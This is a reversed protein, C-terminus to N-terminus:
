WCELYYLIWDKWQFSCESYTTGCTFFIFMQTSVSSCSDSLPELKLCEKSGSLSHGAILRIGVININDRCSINSRGLHNLNHTNKLFLYSASWYSMLYTTSPLMTHLVTSRNWYKTHPESAMHICKSDCLALM